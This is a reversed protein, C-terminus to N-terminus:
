SLPVPWTRSGGKSVSSRLTKILDGFAKGTVSGAVFRRESAAAWLYVPLQYGTGRDLSRLMEQVESSEM